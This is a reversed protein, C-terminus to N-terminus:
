LFAQPQIRFSNTQAFQVGQEQIKTFSVQTNNSVNDVATIQEVDTTKNSDTLTELLKTFDEPVYAYHLGRQKHFGMKMQSSVFVPVDPEIRWPVFWRTLELDSDMDIEPFIKVCYRKEHVRLKKKKNNYDVLSCFQFFSQKEFEILRKAYHEYISDNFPSEEEPLESLNKKLSRSRELSHRNDIYRFDFQPTKFIPYSLVEYISESTGIKRIAGFSNSVASVM